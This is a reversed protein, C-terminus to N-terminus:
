DDKFTSSHKKLQNANQSSLFMIVGHYLLLRLHFRYNQMLSNCNKKRNTCQLRGSKNKQLSKWNELLKNSNQIVSKM